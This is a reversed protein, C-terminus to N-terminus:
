AIHSTLIFKAGLDAMLSQTSGNTLDSLTYSNGEHERSASSCVRSQDTLCVRNPVTQLTMPDTGLEQLHLGDELSAKM